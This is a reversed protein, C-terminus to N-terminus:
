PPKGAFLARVERKLVKGTAGLPLAGVIRIAAPCQNRALRTACYEMLEREDPPNPTGAALVVAAGVEEGYVRSPLGVVAAEAVAPHSVLANEVQRPSINVGGRIILDKARGTVFLEGDADLRGVDGTLMGGDPLLRDRDERGALKYDRMRYPSHVLIEGDEGAPVRNGSGDVIDVSVGPLATGSGGPKRPLGPIESTLFLTESLAFNEHLKFGFREEFRAKTEPPLPAMGVLGLRIRERLFSVDKGDDIDLLMTLMAATFWLTTVGHDRVDDWFSYMVAGGFSANIAVSAGAAMPLLFLNYAGGLYTMPLVDYFRHERNIGMAHSFMAGNGLLNGWGLELIKPTGSTGSTPMFLLPDADVADFVAGIPPTAAVIDGVAHAQIPSAEADTEPRLCLLGDFGALADWRRALVSPSAIMTKAGSLRILNMMEAAPLAPNVPLIPAGLHMCALYLLALEACNDMSFAVPVGKRCEGSALFAALRRSSDLAQRYTTERGTRVERILVRSSNFAFTKVLENVSDVPQEM